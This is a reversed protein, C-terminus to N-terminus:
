LSLAFVFDIYYCTLLKIGLLIGSGSGVDLVRSGEKTIKDSLVELVTAHIYPASVTVKFGLAQPADAYPGYQYSSSIKETKKILPVYFKRDTQLMADEVLKTTIFGASKLNHVLDSNSSASCGSTWM